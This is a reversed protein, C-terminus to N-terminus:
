VPISPPVLYAPQPFSLFIQYLHSPLFGGPGTPDPISDRRAGISRVTVYQSCDACDPQRRPCTPLAMPLDGGPFFVRTPLTRHVSVTLDPELTSLVHSQTKVQATTSRPDPWGPNTHIAWHTTVRWGPEPAVAIPMEPSLRFFCPAVRPDPGADGGAPRTTTV